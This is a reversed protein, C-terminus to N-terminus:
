GSSRVVAPRVRLSSLGAPGRAVALALGALTTPVYWVAHFLVSFAFADVRDVALLGLTSVCLWQYTGVFGPSSPIAVGLNIVAAAFLIQPLTLTIGLSSAVLWASACWAAWAAFSYAAVVPADRRNVASAMTTLGDSVKAGLRSRASRDGGRAHHRAAVLLALLVVGGATAVVHIRGLWAPHPTIPLTLLLLAVLALLDSSRDVVVTGFARTRPIGAGRALWHVRLLDGVRGPVLNNCTLGGVVYALFSTVPQDSERRAIFRWRAAQLVYMVGILAVAAAVRGADAPALSEGVQAFEVNRAALYLFVGSLPVGFGLGVVAHRRPIGAALKM